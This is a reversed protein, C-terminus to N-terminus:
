FHIFSNNKNLKLKNLKKNLSSNVKTELNNNYCICCHIYSDDPITSIKLYKYDFEINNLCFSKSKMCYKM